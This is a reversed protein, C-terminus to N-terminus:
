LSHTPASCETSGPLLARKAADASRWCNDFKSGTFADGALVLRPETSVLVAGPESEMSKYVQSYRWKQLKTAVPRHAMVAPLLAAAQELLAAEVSARTEPPEDSSSVAAHHTLSWPVRWGRGQVGALRARDARLVPGPRDGGNRAAQGRPGGM